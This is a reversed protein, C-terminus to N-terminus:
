EKGYIAYDIVRRNADDVKSWDFSIYRKDALSTGIHGLAKSIIREPIGIKDAYTAWSYRALYFYCRELNLSSGIITLLESMYRKFSKYSSTEAFSLLYKDGKYRNILAQAEPQITIHIPLPEKGAIKTRVYTIKGNRMKEMYFLDIPNIGCFLFSLIFFDRAVAMKGELDANMLKRFQDLPMYEKEKDAQKIKFKRFPYLSQDIVEEDIAKNFARRIQRMIISRTNTHIEKDEMWRDFASLSRYNIEDFEIEEKDFYEHVLRIAYDCIGQTGKNRYQSKLINIQHTFSNKNKEKNGEALRRIEAATMGNIRNERELELISDLYRCYSEYVAANTQGACPASRLVAQTPEGKFYKPATTIGTSITTTTTGNSIHFKIPFNGNKDAKRQDLYLTLKAMITTARFNCPKVIM